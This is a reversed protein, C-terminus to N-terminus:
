FREKAPKAYFNYQKVWGENPEFHWEQDRQPVPGTISNIVSRYELLKIAEEDSRKNKGKPLMKESIGLDFIFKTDPLCDPKYIKM